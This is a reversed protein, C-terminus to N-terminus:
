AAQKLAKKRSKEQYYMHMDISILFILSQSSNGLTVLLLGFGSIGLIFARSDAEEESERSAALEARAAMTAQEQVELAASLKTARLEAEQQSKKAAEFV